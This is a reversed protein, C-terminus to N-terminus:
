IEYAITMNQISGSAGDFGNVYNRIALRTTTSIRGVLSDGTNFVEQGAGNTTNATANSSATIPLTLRTETAATGVTTCTTQSIYTCTRGIVSFRSVAAVSTFTGVQATVTPTYNFWGPYGQPSGLKSYYNASIAANAVTYDTGGTVTLVTATVGIIVFYKVTTQTLKIRDGVQYKTTADTTVTITTSSAFTWTDNADEWGDWNRIIPTTITKNTLTQASSVDVVTAGEIAVVGASVRSITTDSAHGLEISGVGIATSTSAVLGSIPLGTANTLTGSAPTGLAPSVFTKNSLTQALTTFAFTDNVSAFDPITLTTPNVTQSTLAITVLKGNTLLLPSAASTAISTASAVGLTPTTFSPSELWAVTKNVNAMNPITLTAAGVTQNALSLTVTNGAADVTTLKLAGSTKGNVQVFGTNTKGTATTLSPTTADAITTAGSLTNAGTSTLFTGSSGSFDMNGSASTLGNIIPATLTKSSLTQATTKDVTVATDIAISTGTITIGTGGTFAGQGAVQVYTLSTTGMTPNDIGTYAWTTSTLTTGATVFVSDGTKYETSQNADTARTLIGAIGLAGALTVTYIGNQFDSTQNKLLVRDNLVLTVGDIVDTGTATYTFTAGVGSAGNLYVGVLNATTAVRVAEKYNQALVASDVYATTAIKTSNDAATQTTTTPSGGLNVSTKITPATASGAIDGALEIKGTATATADPTPINLTAM